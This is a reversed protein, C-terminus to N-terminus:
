VRNVRLECGWVIACLVAFGGWAIIYWGMSYYIIYLM